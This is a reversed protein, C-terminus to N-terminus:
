AVSSSFTHLLCQVPQCSFSVRGYSSRVGPLGESCGASCSSPILSSVPHVCATAMYEPPGQGPWVVPRLLTLVM